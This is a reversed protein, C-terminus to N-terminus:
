SSYFSGQDRVENKKVLHKVDWVDVPSAGALAHGRSDYCSLQSGCLTYFKQM